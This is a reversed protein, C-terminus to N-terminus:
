CETREDETQASSDQKETTACLVATRRMRALDRREDMGLLRLVEGPRAQLDGQKALTMRLTTDRLEIRSVLPRLDISRPTMRGSRGAKTLRQVPWQDQPGLQALAASASAAQEPPMPLEYESETAQPARRSPLEDASLFRMGPPGARNLRELLETKEMPSNLGLVLPEDTGAVGVPRPSPFTVAPRPNFGQSYRLDLGARAATRQIARMTDHHSAFRADGEAAYRVLWNLGM